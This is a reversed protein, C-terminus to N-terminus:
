SSSITSLSRLIFSVSFRVGLAGGGIICLGRLFGGFSFGGFGFFMSGIGSFAVVLLLLWYVFTIIRPTIMSDFFLVQRM